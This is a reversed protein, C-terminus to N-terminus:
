QGYGLEEKLDDLFDKKLYIPNGKPFLSFLSKSTRNIFGKGTAINVLAIGSDTEFYLYGEMVDKLTATIQVIKNNEMFELIM